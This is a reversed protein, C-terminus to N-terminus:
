NVTISQKTEGGTCASQNEGRLVVLRPCKIEKGSANRYTGGNNLALVISAFLEPYAEVGPGADVVVVYDVPEELNVLVPTFAALTVFLTNYGKTIDKAYAMRDAPQGTIILPNTVGM